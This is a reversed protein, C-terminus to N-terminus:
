LDILLPYCGGTGLQVRNETALDLNPQAFTDSIAYKYALQVAICAAGSTTPKERSPLGRGGRGM